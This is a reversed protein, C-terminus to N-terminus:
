QPQALRENWLRVSPEDPSAHEFGLTGISATSMGFRRGHELPLRIWRITLARLFHGHSMVAINGTLTRLFNILHDARESVQQATEGRPCGRKFIDYDDGAREKIETLTLGEYDGYNWESLRPEVVMQAGLGALETTRVARQRPSTFVHSFSVEKLRKGMARAETEGRPTLQVETTGTHRGSITWETEGHRLLYVLPLTM